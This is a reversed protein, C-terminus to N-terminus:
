RGTSEREILEYGMKLQKVIHKEEKLLELLLIAAERGSTKYYFHVTSLKPTTIGSMRGDGMGCIRVDEPIRRGSELLYSMAGLAITDTACFLADIDPEREFLAKTKQYASEMSFESIEQCSEPCVTHTQEVADLFGLYRKKGVATDKQTVGLYGAKSAHELLKKAIDRAAADDDFYVCSYGDVQQSLVVIPVTLNKMARKHERTFITGLLIIGDVQNEKFLNLYNLEEKEDNETCALLLRFGAEKLVLSIGEVMRGISDSNIKPIIVGILKTKKNRLMQAQTSPQYGTEEIVKRIQEKKEASVYGQNLYRSVTARSVGAMKAIENINMKEGAKESLEMGIVANKDEAELYHSFAAAYSFRHVM